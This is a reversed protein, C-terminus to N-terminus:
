LVVEGLLTYLVLQACAVRVPGDSGMVTVDCTVPICPYWSCWEWDWEIRTVEPIIKGDWVTGVEWCSGTRGIM